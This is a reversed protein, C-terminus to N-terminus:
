AADCGWFHCLWTKRAYVQAPKMQSTAPPTCVGNADNEVDVVPSKHVPVADSVQKYQRATDQM